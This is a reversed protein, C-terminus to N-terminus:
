IVSLTVRDDVDIISQCERWKVPDREAQRRLCSTRWVQGGSCGRIPELLEADVIPSCGAKRGAVLGAM